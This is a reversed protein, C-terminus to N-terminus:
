RRACPQECTDAIRISSMAAPAKPAGPAYFHQRASAIGPSGESIVPREAGSISRVKQMPEDLARM